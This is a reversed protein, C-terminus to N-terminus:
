AVKIIGATNILGDMPIVSVLYGFGPIDVGANNASISVVRKRIIYGYDVGSHVCM